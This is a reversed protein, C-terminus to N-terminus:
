RRHNTPVYSVFLVLSSRVAVQIEGPSGSSAEGASVDQYQSNPCNHTHINRTQICWIRRNKIMKCVVYYTGGVRTENANTPQNRTKDPGIRSCCSTAYKKVSQDRSLHYAIFQCPIFHRYEPTILWLYIDGSQKRTGRERNGRVLQLIRPDQNVLRQNEFRLYVKLTYNRKTTFM